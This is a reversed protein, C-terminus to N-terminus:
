GKTAGAALGRVLLRRFVLAIIAPPLLAVVGGAAIL